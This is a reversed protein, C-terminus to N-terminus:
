PWKYGEKKWRRRLEAMFEKPPGWFIRVNMTNFYDALYQQAPRDMEELQVAVSLIELRRLSPLLGQFLVRFCWDTLRFGILMLSTRTLSEVVRPHLTEQPRAASVLFGLHDDETLVLSEPSEIHGHCFYVLPNATTPREELESVFNTPIDVTAENWRCLMLKPSRRKHKLARVMFDDYNTTLYVSVPLEALIRYPEEDDEFDPAAVKNSLGKILEEKPFMRDNELALFQAVRALDEAEGTKYQSGQAWELATTEQFDRIPEYAGAGIIPTCKDDDIRRLLLNWDNDGITNPLDHGISNNVM